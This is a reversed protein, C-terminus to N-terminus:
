DKLPVGYEDPTYTLLTSVNLREQDTINGEEVSKELIIRVRARREEYSKSDFEPTIVHGCVHGNPLTELEANGDELHKQFIAELKEQLSVM